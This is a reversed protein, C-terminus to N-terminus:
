APGRAGRQPARAAARVRAQESRAARGVSLPGAEAGKRLREVPGQGGPSSLFGGSHEHEEAAIVGDPTGIEALVQGTFASLVREMAIRDQAASVGLGAAALTAALDDSDHGFALDVAAADPRQDAVIPGNVPVGHVVGHLLTSRPWRPETATVSATTAVLRSTLPVFEKSSNLAASVKPDVTSSSPLDSAVASYRKATELGLTERFAGQVNRSQDVQDGGEADSVLFWGLESLRASLSAATEAVDLPDLKPDSWWGAVVYAALDNFAGNPAVTKIDTLPDHFSLRNVGADYVGAWNISGGVTGTLQDKAVTKGSASTAASAAPWQELSVAKATDAELVWAKVVPTNSDKPALIRLVVWRDPLPPMGLRNQSADPVSQLTGHLLADPPAWHLYVGPERKDGAAFPDPMKEPPQGDPTTLACPMRVFLSADGAPVYLAQVDVPVLVRGRRLLGSDWLAVAEPTTDLRV